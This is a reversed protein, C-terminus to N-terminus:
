CHSVMKEGEKKENNVEEEDHEEDEEKITEMDSEEEDGEGEGDEEEEEEEEEEDSEHANFDGEDYAQIPYERWREEIWNRVRNLDKQMDKTFGSAALEIDM